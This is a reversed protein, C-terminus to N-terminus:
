GLFVPLVLRSFVQHIQQVIQETTEVIEASLVVALLYRSEAIAVVADGATWLGPVVVRGAANEHSQVHNLGDSIEIQLLIFLYM